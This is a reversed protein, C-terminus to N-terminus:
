IIGTARNCLSSDRLRGVTPRHFHFHGYFLNFFDVKITQGGICSLPAMSISKQFFNPMQGLLPNVSAWTKTSIELVLNAKTFPWFHSSVCLFYIPSCYRILEHPDQVGWTTTGVVFILNKM